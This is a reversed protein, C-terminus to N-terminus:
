WSFRRPVRRRWARVCRRYADRRDPQRAALRRPLHAIERRVAFGWRTATLLFGLRSLRPIAERLLDLRKGWIEIGADVSVGTINGGPRALSSVIGLAVPRGQTRRNPDNDDGGKFALLLDPSFAYIVDPIRRGCRRRARSISQRGEGSIDSLSSIRGKSM